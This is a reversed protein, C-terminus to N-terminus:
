FNIESISQWLAQEKGVSIAHMLQMFLLKIDKQRLQINENIKRMQNMCLFELEKTNKKWLASDRIQVVFYFLVEHEEQTM